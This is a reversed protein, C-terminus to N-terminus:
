TPTTADPWSRYAKKIEALTAAPGIGLLAYYDDTATM